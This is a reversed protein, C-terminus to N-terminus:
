AGSTDASWDEHQAILSRRATGAQGTLIRRVAQESLRTRTLHGGPGVPCFLPQAALDMPFPSRDPRDRVSRDLAARWTEFARVPCHEGQQRGFTLRRERGSGDPGPPVNILLGSPHEVVDSLQLRVLEDPALGGAVHLVLLLTRRAALCAASDTAPSGARGSGVRPRDSRPEREPRLATAAPAPRPGPLAKAAYMAVDARQWTAHLPEGWRRAASGVSARIGSRGLHQQIRRRLAGLQRADCGGALVAFEDGGVRAVVDQPRCAVSLQRGAARLHADGAAHGLVDNVQKFGNLDIVLVGAPAATRDSRGEEVVLARDWGRRNVLATLADREARRDADAAAARWRDTASQQALVASLLRGFQEVLPLAATLDETQEASGWGCLSGVTCGTADVLPVGLHAQATTRRGPAAAYTPVHLCRPACRPGEGRVMRACVTEAWPVVVDVDVDAGAAAAVRLDQGDRLNVLWLDLGLQAHLFSVAGAAVEGFDTPSRDTTVVALGTM